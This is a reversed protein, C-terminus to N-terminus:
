RKCGLLEEPAQARLMCGYERVEVTQGVLDRGCRDAFTQGVGAAELGLAAGGGPAQAVTLEAFKRGLTECHARTMTMTGAAEAVRPAAPAPPAARPLAGPLPAPLAGVPSAGPDGGPSPARTAEGPTALGHQGPDVAGSPPEPRDAAGGCGAVVIVLACAVGLRMGGIIISIPGDRRAPRARRRAFRTGRLARRASSPGSRPVRRAAAIAQAVRQIMRLLYDRDAISM